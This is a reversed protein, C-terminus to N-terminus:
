AANSEQEGCGRVMRFSKLRKTGSREEIDLVWDRASM